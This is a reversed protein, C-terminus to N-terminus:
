GAEWSKTKDDLSIYPSTGTYAKHTGFGTGTITITQHKATSVMSVATIHPKTAALDSVQAVALSSVAVIGLLMVSSRRLNLTAM